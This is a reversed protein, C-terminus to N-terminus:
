PRREKDPTFLPCATISYTDTFLPGDSKNYYKIQVPEATWGPVPEFRASWSCGGCARACDFCINARHNTEKRKGLRSRIVDNIRDTSLDFEKALQATTAGEYYLILIKMDRIRREDDLEKKTM